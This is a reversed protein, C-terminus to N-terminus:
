SPISFSPPAVREARCRHCRSPAHFPRRESPLQRDCAHCRPPEVVIRRGARRLSQELHRLEDELERASLGLERRLEDFSYSQAGLMDALRQRTTAM